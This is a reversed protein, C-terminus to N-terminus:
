QSIILEKEKGGGDPTSLSVLPDATVLKKGLRVGDQGVWTLQFSPFFIMISLM